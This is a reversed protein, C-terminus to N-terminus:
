GACPRSEPTGWDREVARVDTLMLLAEAGLCTALLAAALDRDVAARQPPVGADVVVPVGGGGCIVLVGDAMLWRITRLEDADVVSRMRLTAIERGPLAENLGQELLYAIMGQLGSGHTVVVDHDVALDAISDM